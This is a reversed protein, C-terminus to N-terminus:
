VWLNYDYIKGTSGTISQVSILRCGHSNILFATIYTLLKKIKIKSSSVEYRLGELASYRFNRGKYV